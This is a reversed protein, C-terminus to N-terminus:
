VVKVRFGKKKLEAKTSSVWAKRFEKAEAELRKVRDKDVVMRDNVIRVCRKVEEDLYYCTTRECRFNHLYLTASEAKFGNDFLYTVGGEKKDIVAEIEQPKVTIRVRDLKYRDKRFYDNSLDYSGKTLREVLELESDAYADELHYGERDVMRLRYNPGGTSAKLKGNELYQVEVDNRGEIKVIKIELKM